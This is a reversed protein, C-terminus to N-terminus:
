CDGAVVVAAAVASVAVVVAFTAVVGVVFALVDVGDDVCAAVSVFSQLFPLSNSVLSLKLHQFWAPVMKMRLTTKMTASKAVTARLICWM